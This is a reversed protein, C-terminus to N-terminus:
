NAQKRIRWFRMVRQATEVTVKDYLDLLKYVEAGELKLRSARAMVIKSFTSRDFRSARTAVALSSCSEDKLIRNATKLDVDTLRAFAQVFCELEKNELFSVMVGETLANQEELRMVYQEAKSAASASKAATEVIRQRSEAIMQDIMEADMNEARDMIEKRLGTSVFFYMDNLLDPAIDDRRVLPSQLASIKESRKVLTEMGGRSIKAGKNGALKVLVKADGKEVLADSVTESVEDRSSILQLHESGQSNVIDVLDSDSLAKSRQLVPSAVSVEDSALQKILGRPASPLDALKDAIEQRLATEVDRAVRSLIDDFHDVENNSFEDPQEMFVDTVERLLDRRKDSSTEKALDVLKELRATAATM